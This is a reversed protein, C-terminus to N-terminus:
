DFYFNQDIVFAFRRRSSKGKRDKRHAVGALFIATRLHLPFRNLSHDHFSRRPYVFPSRRTGSFLFVESEQSLLFSSISFFCCCPALYISIRFLSFLTPISEFPVVRELVKGSFGGHWPFYFLTRSFHEYRLRMYFLTTDDVGSVSTCPPRSTTSETVLILHGFPSSPPRVPRPSCLNLSDHFVM